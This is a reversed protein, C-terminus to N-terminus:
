PRFPSKHSKECRTLLARVDKGLSLAHASKPAAGLAAKLEEAATNLKRANKASIARGLAADHREARSRTDQLLGKTEEEDAFIDICETLLREAERFRARDLAAKAKEQKEHLSKLLRELHEAKETAM